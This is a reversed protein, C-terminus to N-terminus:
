PAGDLWARLLKMIYSVEHKKWRLIIFRIFPCQEQRKQCRSHCRSECLQVEVTFLWEYLVIYAQVDTLKETFIWWTCPDRKKWNKQSLFWSFNCSLLIIQRWLQNKFKSHFHWFVVSLDARGCFLSMFLFRCLLDWIWMKNWWLPPRERSLHETYLYQYWARHTWRWKIWYLM